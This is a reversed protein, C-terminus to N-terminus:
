TEWVPAVTEKSGHDSWRGIEGSGGGGRQENRDGRLIRRRRGRSRSHPQAQRRVCSLLAREQGRNVLKVIGIAFSGIGLAVIGAWDRWPARITTSNM